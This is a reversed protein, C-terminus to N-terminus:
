TMVLLTVLDLLDRPALSPNEELVFVLSNVFNIAFSTAPPIMDVAMAAVSEHVTIYNLIRESIFINIELIPTLHCKGSVYIASSTALM